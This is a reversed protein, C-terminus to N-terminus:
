IGKKAKLFYLTMFSKRANHKAFTILPTHMFFIQRMVTAVGEIGYAHCIFLIECTDELLFQIKASKVYFLIKKGSGPSIQSNWEQNFFLYILTVNHMM